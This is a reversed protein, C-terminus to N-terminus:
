QQKKKKKKEKDDQEREDNLRATAHIREAEELPISYTFHLCRLWTQVVIRVVTHTYLM